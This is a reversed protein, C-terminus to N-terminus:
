FVTVSCKPINLLDDDVYSVFLFTFLGAMAGFIHWLDHSGFFQLLVCPKNLSRSVAASQTWDMDDQFFFWASVFWGVLALSGYLKALHSIREHCMYKILAYYILYMICNFICCYTVIQNLHIKASVLYVLLMTINCISYYIIFTLSIQKRFASENIGLMRKKALCISSIIFMHIGAILYRIYWTKSLASVLFNVSVVVVLLLNSYAASPSELRVLWQRIILLCCIMQICPTDFQFSVNSPCIHYTASAIAQLVMFVGITVDILTSEHVGYGVLQRSRRRRGVTIAVFALGYIAYGINSIINNWARFEGYPNACAHNYFCMEDRNAMSSKSWNHYEVATHMLVPLIIAVPYRLMEGHLSLSDTLKVDELVTIDANVEAIGLSNDTASEDLVILPSPQSSSSLDTSLDLLHDTAIPMSRFRTLTVFPLFILAPIALFTFMAILPVSYSADNLKVFELSLKKNQLATKRSSAGCLSDDPSILVFIRFKEFNAIESNPFLVDARRTFSLIRRNDVKDLDVRRDYLPEDAPVTILNACIDDDSTVTIHFANVNQEKADLFYGLPKVVTLHQDNQNIRTEGPKFKVYYQSRDLHTVSVSYKIDEHLTSHVTIILNQHYNEDNDPLFRQKNKRLKRDGFDEPLLPNLVKGDSYLTVNKYVVPLKLLFNDRGNSVTAELITGHVTDFKWPEDITVSVRTLDLISQTYLSNYLVNVTHAKLTENTLKKNLHKIIISEPENNSAYQTVNPDALRGLVARVVRLIIENYM